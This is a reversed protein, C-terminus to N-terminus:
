RFIVPVPFHFSLLSFSSQEFSPCRDALHWGYSFPLSVSALRLDALVFVDFLITAPRLFLLMSIFQSLLLQSHLFPFSSALFSYKAHYTSSHSNSSSTLPCINLKFSLQICLLQINICHISWPVFSSNSLVVCTFKLPMKDFFHD